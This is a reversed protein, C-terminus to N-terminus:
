RLSRHFCNSREGYEYITSSNTDAMPIHMGKVQSEVSECLKVKVGPNQQLWQNAKGVLVSFDCIFLLPACFCFM